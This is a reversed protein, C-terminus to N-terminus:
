VNGGYLTEKLVQNDNKLKDNKEKEQELENQLKSILNLVIEIAKERKYYSLSFDPEQKLLKIAEKEEESM